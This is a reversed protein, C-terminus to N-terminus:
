VRLFYQNMENYLVSHASQREDYIDVFVEDIKALAEAAGM